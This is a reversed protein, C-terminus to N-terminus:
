VHVVLFLKRRDFLGHPVVGHEAAEDIVAFSLEGDDALVLGGPAVRPWAARLELRVNAYSHDSDHFFIDMPGLPAIAAEFGGPEIVRLDWRSSTREEESLLSGVASSIDVSVLSGSGNRQMANLVLFTSAGNAVGTEVMLEPHLARVLLYLLRGSEREVAFREPYRLQQTATRRELERLLLDAEASLEPSVEHGLRSLVDEARVEISATARVLDKLTPKESPRRLRRLPMIFLVDRAARFSGLVGHNRVGGLVRTLM